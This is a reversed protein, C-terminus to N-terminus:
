EKDPFLSNIKQMGKMNAEAVKIDCQSKIQAVNFKNNLNALEAKAEIIKNNDNSLIAVEVNKEAEKIQKIYPSVKEGESSRAQAYQEGAQKKAFSAQEKTMFQEIMVNLTKRHLGPHFNPAKVDKVLYNYFGEFTIQSRNELMMLLNAILLLAFCLLAFKLRNSM